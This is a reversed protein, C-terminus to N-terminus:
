VAIILVSPNIFQSKDPLCSGSSFGVTMEKIQLCIDLNGSAQM